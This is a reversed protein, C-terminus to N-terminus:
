HMIIIYNCITSQLESDYIGTYYKLLIECVVLVYLITNLTRHFVLAVIVALVSFRFDRSFGFSM